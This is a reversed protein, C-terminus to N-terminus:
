LRKEAAQAPEPVLTTAYVAAVGSALTGAVLLMWVRKM